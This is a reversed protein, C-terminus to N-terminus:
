ISKLYEGEGVEILASAAIRNLRSKVGNQQLSRACFISWSNSRTCVEACTLLYDSIGPVFVRFPSCFEDVIEAHNLM